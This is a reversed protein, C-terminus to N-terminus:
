DFLIIKNRFIIEVFAKPWNEKIENWITKTLLWGLGPFFDSRHLLDEFFVCVFTYIMRENEERVRKVISKKILVMIMGLLYAGFLKIM